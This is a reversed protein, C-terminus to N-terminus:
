KKNNYEIILTEKKGKRLYFPIHIHVFVSIQQMKVKYFFVTTRTCAPLSSKSNFCTLSIAAALFLHSVRTNKMKFEIEKPVM